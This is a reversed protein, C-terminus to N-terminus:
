SKKKITGVSFHKKVFSKSSSFIQYNPKDKSSYFFNMKKKHNNDPIIALNFIKVNKKSKWFKKLKSLHMSNAEIIIIKQKKKKLVFNTFGDQYSTDSNAAGSGIQVLTM